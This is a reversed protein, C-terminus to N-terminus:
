ALTAEVKKIIQDPTFLAKILYDKAGLEIAREKDQKHGLNTLMIVPIHMTKKDEKLRRLVDFGNMKPLLIDLLILDPASDYSYTIGTKGDEASILYYGKQKFRLKYMEILKPDDEILLIKSTHKQTSM